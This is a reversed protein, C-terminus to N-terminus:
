PPMRPPLENLKERYSSGNRWYAASGTRPTPARSSAGQAGPAGSTGPSGVGGTTVGTITPVSPEFPQYVLLTVTLQFTSSGSDSIREDVPQPAVVSVVSVAPVLSVHAAVLSPPSVVTLLVNLSSLVGGEAVGVGARLASALAPVVM